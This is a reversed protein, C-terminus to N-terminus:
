ASAGESGGATWYMKAPAQGLIPPVALSSAPFVVALAAFLALAMPLLARRARPPGALVSIAIM